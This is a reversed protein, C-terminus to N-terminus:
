RISYRKADACKDYPGEIIDLTKPTDAKVWQPQSLTRYLMPRTGFENVIGNPDEKELWAIFMGAAELDSLSMGDTLEAAVSEGCYWVSALFVDPSGALPTSPLEGSSADFEVLQVKQGAVDFYILTAKTGPSSSGGTFMSIILYVISLLILVGAAGMVVPKHDELKDRLEGLGM